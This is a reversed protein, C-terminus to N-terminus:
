LLGEARFSRCEGGAFILHDYVRLGVAGAAEALARTGRLDEESPSANGSPHNHAVVISASGLKLANAVIARVPVPVRDARDATEELTLGILRRKDDLHAVAVRERALGAFLPRFLDAADSATDIRMGAAM